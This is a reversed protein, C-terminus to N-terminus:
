FRREYPETGISTLTRIQRNVIYEMLELRRDSVDCSGMFRKFHFPYMGMLRKEIARNMVARATDNFADKVSLNIGARRVNYETDFIHALSDEGESVAKFEPLLCDGTLYIPAAGLIKSSDNDVLYGFNNKNRGENLTLTDVIIMDALRRYDARGPVGDGFKDEMSILDYTEIGFRCDPAAFEYPLYGISENTFAMSVARPIPQGSKDAYKLRKYEVFRSAAYEGSYAQAVQSAYCMLIPKISSKALGLPGCTQHLERANNRNVWSQRWPGRLTFNPSVMSQEGLRPRGTIGLGAEKAWQPLPNRYPSVSNWTDKDSTLKVWLTDYLSVAHTRVLYDEIYKIHGATLLAASTFKTDMDFRYKLYGDVNRIYTPLRGSVLGVGHRSASIVGIQMDKNMLAFEM